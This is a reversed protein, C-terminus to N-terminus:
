ALRAMKAAAIVIYALVIPAVFPGLNTRGAGTGASVGESSVGFGQLSLCALDPVPMSSPLCPPPPTPLTSPLCPPPAPPMPSPLCPPPRYAHTLAPLPTPPLASSLLVIGAVAVAVAVVM